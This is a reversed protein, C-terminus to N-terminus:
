RRSDIHMQWAREISQFGGDDLGKAVDPIRKSIGLERFETPFLLEFIKLICVGVQSATRLGHGLRRSNDQLYVQELLVDGSHKRELLRDSTAALENQHAGFETLHEQLDQYQRALDGDRRAISEYLKSNWLANNAAARTQDNDSRYLWVTATAFNGHTISAYGACELCLRLVPMAETIAGGLGLAAAANFASHARYFLTLPVLVELNMTNPVRSANEGFHSLLLNIDHLRRAEGKRAFTKIANSTLNEFYAALKSEAWASSSRRTTSSKKPHWPTYERLREIWEVRETIKM